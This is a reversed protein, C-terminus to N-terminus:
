IYGPPNACAFSLSLTFLHATDNPVTLRYMAHFKEKRMDTNELHNRLFPNKKILFYCTLIAIIIVATIVRTPM